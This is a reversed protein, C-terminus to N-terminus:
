IIEGIRVGTFSDVRTRGMLRFTERRIYAQQTENCDTGVKKITEERM